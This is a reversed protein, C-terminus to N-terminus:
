TNKGSSMTSGNEANNIVQYKFTTVPRPLSVPIIGCTDGVYEDMAESFVPLLNGIDKVTVLRKHCNKVEHREFIQFLKSGLM